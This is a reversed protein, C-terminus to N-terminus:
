LKFELRQRAVAAVPKGGEIKPTFKWQSLARIAERDFERRPQSNVVEINTVDGTATVTFSLDVWGTIRQRLARQPYTPPVRKTLKFNQDQVSSSSAVSPTPTTTAISPPPTVSPTTERTETPRTPPPTTSATSTVPAETTPAETTSAAAQQAAARQQALLAAQQQQAIIEAERDTQLRQMQEIKGALSILVVSNPDAKRLLGLTREAQPVNGQRIYSEAQDTAFPIVELLAEQAIRNDPDKELVRLYLEVENTGEPDVFQNKEHAARAQALLSEISDAEASDAAATTDVALTPTDSNTSEVTEVKDGKLFGALVFGLAALLILGIVIPLVLKRSGGTAQNSM